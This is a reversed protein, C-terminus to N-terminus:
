GLENGADLQLYMYSLIYRVPYSISRLQKLLLFQDYMVDLYCPQLVLKM